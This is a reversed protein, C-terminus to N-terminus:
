RNLRKLKINRNEALLYIKDAIISAREVDNQKIASELLSINDSIEEEISYVSASSKVPSSHILNYIREIKKAMLKDTIQHLISNIRSSSEKVYHLEIERRQTSDATYENAILHMILWALFVGALIVQTIITLLFNDPVVLILAAGVALEVLFYSVTVTYLPRSYIYSANGRKVFLPTLLLLIYTFHIAGYSVWISETKGTILMFFLVNFVILFLSNLLFWLIVRKM